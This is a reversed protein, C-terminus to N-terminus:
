KDRLIKNLLMVVSYINKYVENKEMEEYLNYLQIDFIELTRPHSKYFTAHVKLANYPTQFETYKPSPINQYLDGKSILEYIQNTQEQTLKKELKEKMGGMRGTGLKQYYLTGDKLNWTETITHSDKSKEVHNIQIKFMKPSQAQSNHFLIGLMISFFFFVKRM